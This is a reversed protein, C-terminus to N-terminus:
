CRSTDKLCVFTSLVLNRSLEAAVIAADIDGIEKYAKHFWFQLAARHHFNGSGDYREYARAWCDLASDPDGTALYLRGMNNMIHIASINESGRYRHMYELAQPIYTEPHKQTRAAVVFSNCLRPDDDGGSNLVELAADINGNVYAEVQVRVAGLNKYGYREALLVIEMASGYQAQRYYSWALKELVDEDALAPYENMAFAILEGYRGAEYLQSVQKIFEEEM